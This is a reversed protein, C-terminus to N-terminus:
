KEFTIAYKEMEEDEYLELDKIKGTGSIDLRIKELRVYNESNASIHVYELEAGLSMGKDSKYKRIQSVIDRAIEGTEEADLDVLKEDAVPWTEPKSCDHKM